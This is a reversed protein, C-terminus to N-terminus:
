LKITSEGVVIYILLMVYKRPILDALMLKRPRYRDILWGALFGFLLAIILKELANGSTVVTRSWGFEKVFFDYFSPLGNLASGVIALLALFATAVVYPKSGRIGHSEPSADSSNM